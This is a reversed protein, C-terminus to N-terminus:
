EKNLMASLENIDASKTSIYHWKPIIDAGPESINGRMLAERRIIIDFIKM